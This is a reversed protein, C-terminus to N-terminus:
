QVGLIPNEYYDTLESPHPYPSKYGHSFLLSVILPWKFNGADLHMDITDLYYRILRLPIRRQEQSQHECSLFVTGTQHLLTTKYIIDRERQKLDNDTNKRDVRVLTELNILETVYKPVHQKFFAHAIAPIELSLAFFPDHKPKFSSM